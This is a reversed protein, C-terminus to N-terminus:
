PEGTGDDGSEGDIVGARKWELSLCVKDVCGELLLDEGV